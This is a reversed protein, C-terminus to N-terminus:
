LGAEKQAGGWCPLWSYIASTAARRVARRQSSSGTRREAGLSESGKRWSRGCITGTSPASPSTTGHFTGAPIEDTKASEDARDPWEAAAIKADMEAKLDELSILEPADQENYKARIRRAYQTTESQKRATLESQRLGDTAVPQKKIGALWEEDSSAQHLYVQTLAEVDRLYRDYLDRAAADDIAEHDRRAARRWGAFWAVSILLAGLVFILVTM